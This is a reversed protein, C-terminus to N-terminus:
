FLLSSLLGIALGIAGTALPLLSRNEIPKLKSEALLVPPQSLTYASQATILLERVQASRLMSVDPSVLIGQELRWGLEFRTLANFLWNMDITPLKQAIAYRKKDAECHTLDVILLVNAYAFGLSLLEQFVAEPKELKVQLECIGNRVVINIDDMGFLTLMPNGELLPKM